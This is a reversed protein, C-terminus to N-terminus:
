MVLLVLEIRVYLKTGRLRLLAAGIAAAHAPDLGDGGGDPGCGALRLEWQRLVHALRRRPPPAMAAGLLASVAAGPDRVGPSCPTQKMYDTATWSSFM